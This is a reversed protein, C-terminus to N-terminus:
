DVRTDGIVAVTKTTTQYGYASAALTLNGKSIGGIRYTGSVDAMVSKGLYAQDLAQVTVPLSLGYGGGFGSAGDTVQGTITYVPEVRTAGTPGTSSSDGGCDASCLCCLVAVGIRSTVRTNVTVHAPARLM